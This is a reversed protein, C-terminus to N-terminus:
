LLFSVVTGFLAVLISPANRFAAGTSANTNSNGTSSPSSGTGTSTGTGDTTTGSAYPTRLVKDAFAVNFTPTGEADFVAGFTTYVNRMFPSGVRYVGQENAELTGYCTDGERYVGDRADM